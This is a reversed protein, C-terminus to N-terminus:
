CNIKQQPRIKAKNKSTAKHDKQKVSKCSRGMDQHGLEELRFWCPSCASSPNRCSTLVAINGNACSGYSSDRPSGCISMCTVAWGVTHSQRPRTSVRQEWGPLDGSRQLLSSGNCQGLRVLADFSLLLFWFTPTMVALGMSTINWHCQM